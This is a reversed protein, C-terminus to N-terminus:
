IPDYFYNNRYPLSYKTLEELIIEFSNFYNNNTTLNSLKNFKYKFCLYLIILIHYM